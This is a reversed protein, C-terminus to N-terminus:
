RAADIYEQSPKEHKAVFFRNANRSLWTSFRSLETKLRTVSESSMNTQAIM